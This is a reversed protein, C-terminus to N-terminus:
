KVEIKLETEGEVAEFVASAFEPPGFIARADNSFGYPETPYGAIARNMKGDSDVDHYVAIAYLGPPIPDLQISGDVHDIDFSQLHTAMAHNPFGDAADFVAVKLSGRSQKLGAIQLIVSALRQDEIAVIGKPANEETDVSHNAPGRMLTIVAIGILLLTFYLRRSRM